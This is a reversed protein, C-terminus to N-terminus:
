LEPKKAVLLLDDCEESNAQVRWHSIAFGASRIEELIDEPLGIYRTAIDGHVLCRSQPDFHARTEQCTVEGCMTAILLYGGPRLARLSNQLFKPRDDGIICHFCHGDFVLDFAKKFEEPLHLV